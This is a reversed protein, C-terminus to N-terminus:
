SKLLEELNERVKPLIKKAKWRVYGLFAKLALKLPLHKVGKLYEKSVIEEAWYLSHELTKVLVEVHEPKLLKRQFWDKNKFVGMPVFFMPVILSRYPRLRDLQEATKMVDDPTEGPLGLILTGAPIIHNEHMIAFADEVIDPWMEAPYPAAKAPMVKKALEVSLTEIGVEVGLYNTRQLVYDQMIKSVVKYNDEAYKVAALSAHSWALSGDTTHYWLEHLKLLPEPRPKVGDAGYLLVDESHYIVNHVGHRKNVEIEAKIKELPIYRLPRLTVSCFKCGRPCGRMIEVLGNVSAGKIVPIEEITPAESPSVYIYDPLPEGNLAKDVIDVIVREAEGDVVTDVGWKKWYDLEWLWQWAAPGGVIIRVGKEKAKRVVPSEMLRRFSKRNVPEKGTIMWWESSPPGLAFFDHHGIMLVKMTDLHKHLHDPDIIAAKFGAEQLKAEIKRLGYPAQWPRGESDVKMKPAAIWMWVREPLGIAPGTTMFGIFEKGHHNSMMTRDTTIVVEYRGM